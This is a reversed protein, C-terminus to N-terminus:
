VYNTNKTDWQSQPLGENDKAANALSANTVRTVDFHVCDVYSKFDGGWRMGLSKAVKPIGSEVWPKRDKKRYTVGTPDIVNMDVAYAYNHPSRGPTANKSNQAKLEISRQYTRYTANISLTYGPYKEELTNLFKKWTDQTNINLESVLWDISQYKGYTRTDVIVGAVKRKDIIKLKQNPDLPRIPGKIEVKTTGKNSKPPHM